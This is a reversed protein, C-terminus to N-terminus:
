PTMKLASFLVSLYCHTRFCIRIFLILSFAFFLTHMEKNYVKFSAVIMPLSIWGKMTWYLYDKTYSSVKCMTIYNQSLPSREINKFVCFLFGKFYYFIHFNKMWIHRPSSYMWLFLIRCLSMLVSLIKRFLFSSILIPSKPTALISIALSKAWVM